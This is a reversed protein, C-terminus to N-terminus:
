RKGYVWGRRSRRVAVCGLLWGGRYLGPVKDVRGRAPGEKLGLLGGRAGCGGVELAALIRDLIDRAPRQGALRAQWRERILGVL